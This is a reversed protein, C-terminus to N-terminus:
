GERKSGFKPYIFQAAASGKKTAGRATGLGADRLAALSHGLLATGMGRNHYEMSICPGTLLHSPADREPSLGSAGIIRSGHTLILCFPDAKEHFVDTLANEILPRIERAFPNWDCDLTFSSMVVAQVTSFDESTARRITFSPPLPPIPALKALEWSFHEWHVTTM